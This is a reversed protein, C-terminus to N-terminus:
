FEISAKTPDKKSPNGFGYKEMLMEIASRYNLLLRNLMRWAVWSTGLKKNGLGNLIIKHPPSTILLNDIEERKEEMTEKEDKNLKASITELASVLDNAIILYNYNHYEPHRQMPAIYCRDIRLFIENLRIQQFYAQNFGATGPNTNQNNEEQKM